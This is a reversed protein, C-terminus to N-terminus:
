LFEKILKKKAKQIVNLHIECLQHPTSLLALVILPFMNVLIRIFFFRIYWLRLPNVQRCIVLIQNIILKFQLNNFACKLDNSLHFRCFPNTIKKEKIKFKLFGNLKISKKGTENRRCHKGFTCSIRQGYLVSLGFVM